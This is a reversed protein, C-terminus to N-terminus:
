EVSRHLLMRVVDDPMSPIARARHLFERLIDGSSQVTDESVELMEGEVLVPGQTEKSHKFWTRLAEAMGSAWKSGNIM